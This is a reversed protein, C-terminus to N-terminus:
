GVATIISSYESLPFDVPSHWHSGTPNDTSSSNVTCKIKRRTAWTKISVSYSTDEGCSSKTGLCLSRQPKWDAWMWRVWGSLRGHLQMIDDTPEGKRLRVTCRCSYCDADWLSHMMRGCSHELFPFDVPSSIGINTSLEASINVIECLNFFFFFFSFMNTSLLDAWANECKHTLLTVDHNPSMHTSSLPPPLASSDVAM